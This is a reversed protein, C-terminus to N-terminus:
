VDCTVRRADCTARAVDCTVRFPTLSRTGAKSPLEGRSAGALISCSLTVQVLPVRALAAGGTVPLACQMM